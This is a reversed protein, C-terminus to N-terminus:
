FGGPSIINVLEWESLSGLVEPEPEMLAQSFYQTTTLEAAMGSIIRALSWIM